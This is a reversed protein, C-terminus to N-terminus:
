HYNVSYKYANQYRMDKICSGGMLQRKEKLHLCDWMTGQGRESSTESRCIRYSSLASLCFHCIENEQEKLVTHTMLRKVM